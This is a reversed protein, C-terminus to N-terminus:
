GHHDTKPQAPAPYPYLSGDSWKPLIVFFSTLREVEETQSFVPSGRVNGGWASASEDEDGTAPMYFILHPYWQPWPIGPHDPEYEQIYTDKSLMYAMSGPAPYGIEHNKVAAKTRALIEDRSVGALVWQTRKLYAPLVSRVAEANMCHPMRSKPNWFETSDLNQMWSRGVFCTFGNSGQVATEYGSKGLTLITADDAIPKPGASRALAIEAAPDAMMYQQVPAMAPYPSKADDARVPSILALSLALIPLFMTKYMYM